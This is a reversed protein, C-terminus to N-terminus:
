ASRCSAKGNSLTSTYEIAKEFTYRTCLRALVFIKRTGFTELLIRTRTGLVLARSPTIFISELKLSSQERLKCQVKPLTIKNQCSIRNLGMKVFGNTTKSLKKKRRNLQFWLKNLYSKNQM